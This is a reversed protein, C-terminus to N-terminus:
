EYMERLEKILKAAEEEVDDEEYGNDLLLQKFAEWNCELFEIVRDM